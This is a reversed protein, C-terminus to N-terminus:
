GAARQAWPANGHPVALLAGVEVASIPRALVFGQAIDCNRERLFDLQELTEVGEAVVLKDLAHAMDIITGALTSAQASQPVEQMFSRDIKITDVPHQRLYNLSSYGTGFDDLALRVGLAALDRLTRRAEEDAFMSETMELELMAAPLEYRDLTRQVAAAFDTVRLQQVSVNLALRAPALGDERWRALQHCATDLVWAGIDIILGSQEAVPIFDKPYRMGERPSQWRLLAELGVLEGTRLSFQPQYYLAFERRRLARFLGSDAIGTQERAMKSDFFVARARGGDKAQYMAQDANRLLTEISQGDDPFLTIGISARVQHDRGGINVPRQLADIIRQAIEGAVAAATVNRLIVTFEDGGLRAVTDGDKVCSRLRQAVITLLQDGAIHGVSDNVKKFHDLDVYLLAGRQSTDSSSALEQSLRDRFLLRNPLSTLSDFHAQRYLREDRELNSLGIRLREACEAGYAASGAAAPARGRYGVVLMAAVSEGVIVPWLEFATAGRERLPQLFGYLQQETDPVCLGGSAERMREVVGDELSVRSVACEADGVVWDFSRAHGPADPDVLLVAALDAAMLECVHPLMADLAQEFQETQLLLRDIQGLLGQAQLRREVAQLARNCSEAVARPTDSGADLPVPEIRGEGLADLAGAIRHLLPEWRGSLHHTALATCAAALALLLLLWGSFTPLAPLSDAVRGFAIVDWPAASLHADAPFDLRVAVSRWLEGDQTWDRRVPQMPNREDIPLHAFQELVRDPLPEGAYVVQGSTNVVALAITEGTGAAGQWLWSSAFDFFAIQPAATSSIMRALFLDMRGREPTVVKLISQGSRLLRRDAAAYRPLAPDVDPPSSYWPVFEVGRFTHSALANQRLVAGGPGYEGAVLAQAVGDAVELRALLERAAPLAAEALRDTVMADRDVNIAHVAVSAAALALLLVSATGVIAMRRRMSM